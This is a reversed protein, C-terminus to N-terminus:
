VPKKFPIINGFFIQQLQHRLDDTLEKEGTELRSVEKQTLGLKEGLHAQSLHLRARHMKIDAQDIHPRINERLHREEAFYEQHPRRPISVGNSVSTVVFEMDEQTTLPIDIVREGGNADVYWAEGKQLKAVIKAAEGDQLLSQAQKRKMRHALQSPFNDRIETPIQTGKQTQAALILFMGFKRSETTGKALVDHLRPINRMLHLGEDCILVWTDQWPEGRDIRRTMEQYFTEIMQKADIHNQCTQVCPVDTLVGMTATLSEPNGAHSDCLGVWQVLGHYILQSLFFRISTTKGSNTMGAVTLHVIDQTLTGRIPTHTDKEYGILVSGSHHPETVMDRFAPFAFPTVDIIPHDEPQAAVLARGPKPFQRMFEISLRAAQEPFQARLGEINIVQTLAQGFLRDRVLRYHVIIESEGIKQTVLSYKRLTGWGAFYSFIMVGAGCCGIFVVFGYYWVNRWRGVHRIKDQLKADELRVRERELRIKASELAQVDGHLFSLEQSALVKAPNAPLSALHVIGVTTCVALFGAIILRKTM